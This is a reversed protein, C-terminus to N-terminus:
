KSFKHGSNENLVSFLQERATNAQQEFEVDSSLDRRLSESVLIRPLTALLAIVAGRWRNKREILLGGMLAPIGVGTVVAPLGDLLRRKLTRELVWEVAGLVAGTSVAVGVSKIWTFYLRKLRNHTSTERRKPIVFNLLVYFPVLVYGIISEVGIAWALTRTPRSTQEQPATSDM